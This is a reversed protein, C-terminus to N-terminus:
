RPMPTPGNAVRPMPTPGNAVRPMPTPGNAVRPMPTPGNAPVFHTTFAKLGMAGVLVSLALVTVGLWKNM